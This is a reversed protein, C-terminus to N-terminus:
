LSQVIPWVHLYIEAFHPFILVFLIFFYVCCYVKDGVLGINERWAGTLALTFPNIREQGELHVRLCPVHFAMSPLHPPARLFIFHSHPLLALLLQQALMVSLLYIPFFSHHLWFTPIRIGSILCISHPFMELPSKYLKFLIFCLFM